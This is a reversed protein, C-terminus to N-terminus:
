ESLFERLPGAASRDSLVVIVTDDGAVTGAIGELDSEDIASAVVNAAGPPTRLVVLFEVQTFSLVLGPIVSVREGRGPTGALGPTGSASGSMELRPKLWDAEHPPIRYGAGTRVLGLEQIDRSITAQTVPIGRAQLAAALDQQTQVPHQRVLDLIARQRTGKTPQGPPRQAVQEPQRKTAQGAAHKAGPGSVPAPGQEPASGQEPESGQEPQQESKGRAGPLDPCATLQAPRRGTM